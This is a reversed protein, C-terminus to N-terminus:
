ILACGYQVKATIKISIFIFAFTGNVGFGFKGFAFGTPLKRKRSYPQNVNKKKCYCDQPM